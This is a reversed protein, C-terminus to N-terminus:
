FNGGPPGFSGGGPPGGPFGGGPPRGHRFEASGSRSPPKDSDDDASGATTDSENLAKSSGVSNASVKSCDITFAAPLASATAHGDTVIPHGEDAFSARSGSALTIAVVITALVFRTM